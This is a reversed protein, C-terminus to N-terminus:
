FQVKYKNFLVFLYKLKCVLKNKFLIIYIFLQM